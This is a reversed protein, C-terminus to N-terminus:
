LPKGCFSCYCEDCDDVNIRQMDRKIETEAWKIGREAQELLCLNKLYKDLKNKREQSLYKYDELLRDTSKYTNAMDASEKREAPDTKAPAWFLPITQEEELEDQIREYETKEDEAAERM